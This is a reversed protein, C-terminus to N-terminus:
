FSRIVSLGITRPPIIYFSQPFATGAGGDIVGRKDLVNNAYINLRWLDHVASALLDLKAYGPLDQRPGPYTPYAAPLFGGKRDGVYSVTASVAGETSTALPFRQEVSLNGSFRSSRPLADGPAAYIGAQLAALPYNTLEADSFVVWGSITLRNLPRAQASLELGESKARGGNGTFGGVVIGNVVSALSLQIDKWDIYYASIDTTLAHDYFSGKFGLEYNYTKDPNYHPPPNGPGFGNSGGPRFGSALRLYMMLDPTIKLEPTFLFSSANPSTSDSPPVAVPSPAGILTNFAYNEPPQTPGTYTVAYQHTSYTSVRGGLQISLRDTAQYTFNLFGAREMTLVNGDSSNQTLYVPGAISGTLPESAYADQTGIPSFDHSYFGGMLVQLRPALPVTLRFEQTFRRQDTNQFSPFGVVGYAPFVFAEGAGGGSSDFSDQIHNIGYGTVSMLELQGFKATVVADYFQTKREYQGTGAIYAQKLDGFVPNGNWDQTTIDNTGDGRLDQYLAGVKVSVTDSPKWVLSFDGGYARVANVGDIHTLPNDLYGPDNRYFGALRIALDGTLPVNLSGRATYGLGSGNHIESGGAELRGSVRDSSPDVTVYNILGGMSSAGFLTGQPGRLVEVRALSGPDIDPISNGTTPGYPVGDIMVGVTAIVGGLSSIGRLSLSTSSFLGPGISLSPIQQYYDLLTTQNTEALDTASLVTVPVPVDQLREERKQATVVVEQLVTEGASSTVLEGSVAKLPLVYMISSLAAVTM